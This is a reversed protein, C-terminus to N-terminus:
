PQRSIAKGKSKRLQCSNSFPGVCTQLIAPSMSTFKLAVCNTPECASASTRSSCGRASITAFCDILRPRRCSFSYQTLNGSHATRRVCWLLEGSFADILSHCRKEIHMIFSKRPRHIHSHLKESLSLRQNVSCCILLSGFPRCSTASYSAATRCSSASSAAAALPLESSSMIDTSIRVLVTCCCDSTGAAAAMTCCSQVCCGDSNCSGCVCGGECIAAPGANCM